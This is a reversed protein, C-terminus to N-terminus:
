ERFSAVLSGNIFLDVRRDDPNKVEDPHQKIAALWESLGGDHIKDPPVHLAKQGVIDELATRVNKARLQALELNRASTGVRDTQGVIWIETTPSALAALQDACVIRLYQRAAPTLLSSDFCFHATRALDGTVNRNALYAKSLDIIRDSHRRVRGIMGEARVKFKPKGGKGGGGPTLFPEANEFSLLPGNKSRLYGGMVTVGPTIGKFGVSASLEGLWLTGEFDEVGWEQDTTVVLDFVDDHSPFKPKGGTGAIVEFSESWRPETLQEVKLTGEAYGLFYGFTIVDFKLHYRHTGATRSPTIPVDLLKALREDQREQALKTLWDLFTRKEGAHNLKAHALWMKAVHKALQPNNFHGNPIIQHAREGFAKLRPHLPLIDPSTAPTGDWLMHSMYNTVRAAKTQKDQKELYTIGVQTKLYEDLLDRLLDSEASDRLFEYKAKTLPYWERQQLLVSLYRDDSKFLSEMMTARQDGIIQLVEDRNSDGDISVRKRDADLISGDYWLIENGKHQLTGWMKDPKDTRFLVATGDEQVDGRLEWYMQSLPGPSRMTRIAVIANGAQNIAWFTHGGSGKKSEYRGTFNIRPNDPQPKAVERRHQECTVGGAQPVKPFPVKLWQLVARRVTVDNPAGADRGIKTLRNVRREGGLMARFVTGEWGTPTDLSESPAYRSFLGTPAGYSLAGGTKGGSEFRAKFGDPNYEWHWPERRYPFWGFRRGNLAMWKYVPSRYMAVMNPMTATSIETIRLDPVTLALDIALGYTHSSTGQAVATGSPNSAKIREQTAASRFSSLITLTVGDTQAADRMRVFADKAEPFLKQGGNGPVNLVVSDVNHYRIGTPGTNARRERVVREMANFLAETEATRTKGKKPFDQDQWNVESLFHRRRSEDPLLELASRNTGLIWSRVSSALNSRAADDASLWARADDDVALGVAEEDFDLPQVVSQGKAKAPMVVLDARVSTLLARGFVRPIDGHEVRTAEARYAPRLPGSTPFAHAVDLSNAQTGAGYIIRCGGGDRALEAESNPGTALAADARVRNRTWAAIAPSPAYLADYIHAEHPNCAPRVSYHQVLAELAQGAGSHVTIILRGQAIDRGALAERKFVSLAFQILRELGAGQGAIIAPFTYRSPNPKRGAQKEAQYEAATIKRGRPLIALTPRTRGGLDLGSTAVKRELMARTPELPSFGHLHVVVDVAAANDPIANWALYLNEGAGGHGGLPDPSLRTTDIYRDGARVELTEAELLAGRGYRNMTDGIRETHNFRSSFRRESRWVGSTGASRGGSHMVHARDGTLKSAADFNERLRGFSITYREGAGVPWPDNVRVHTGEPTGDGCLGTVVIAHLGPSAEGVWLPGFTELMQRFHDVEWVDANPENVLGWRGAFAAVDEPHLGNKFESWRGAGRAVEDPNVVLRERWGILMAAAAAWCSMGTTQAVLPVENWVDFSRRITTQEFSESAGDRALLSM